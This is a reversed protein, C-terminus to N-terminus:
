DGFRVSDMDMLSDAGAAIGAAHSLTRPLIRAYYFRATELKAQKFADTHSSAQAAVVSRAWWYAVAIYGSYFLYDWSAAGLEEPNAAARQLVDITLKGWEKAKGGLVPLFEAM